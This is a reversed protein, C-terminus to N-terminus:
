RAIRIKRSTSPQDALSTADMSSNVVAETFLACWRARDVIRARNGLPRSLQAGARGRVSSSCDASRWNM